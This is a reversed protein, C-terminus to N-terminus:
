KKKCKMERKSRETIKKEKEGEKKNFCDICLYSVYLCEAEAEAEAEAEVEVEGRRRGGVLVGVGREDRDWAFVREYEGLM